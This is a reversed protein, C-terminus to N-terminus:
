VILGREGRRWSRTVVMRSETERFKIVRPVEDLHTTYKSLQTLTKHGWPSYLGHFEGPWFIPTPLRERRWPIERGLFGVPTAVSSDPFGWRFEFRIHFRIYFIRLLLSARIPLPRPRQGGLIAM